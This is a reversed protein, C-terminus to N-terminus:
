AAAGIAGVPVYEVLVQVDAALAAGFALASSPRSPTGTFQVETATPAGSVVPWATLDNANAAAPDLTAVRLVLAAPEPLTQNASAAAQIWAAKRSLTYAM